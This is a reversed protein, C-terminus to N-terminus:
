FTQSCDLPWSCIHTITLFVNRWTCMCVLKWFHLWPRTTLLIPDDHYLSLAQVIILSCLYLFHNLVNHSILYGAAFIHSQWFCMFESSAEEHCQNKAIFCWWVWNDMRVIFPDIIHMIM